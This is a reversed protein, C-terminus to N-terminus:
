RIASVRSGRLSLNRLLNKQMRHLYRSKEYCSLPEAWSDHFRRPLVIAATKQCPRRVTGRAHHREAGRARIPAIRERAPGHTVAKSREHSPSAGDALLMPLLQSKSRFVRAPGQITHFLATSARSAAVILRPTECAREKRCNLKVRATPHRRAPVQRNSRRM